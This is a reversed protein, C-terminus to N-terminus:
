VHFRFVRISDVIVVESTVPTDVTILALGGYPIMSANVWTGNVYIKLQFSTKIGDIYIDRVIIDEEGYNYAAILTSNIVLIDLKREMSSKMGRYQESVAINELRAPNLLSYYVIPFLSLITLIMILHALFSSVGKM